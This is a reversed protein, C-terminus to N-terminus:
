SSAENAEAEGETEETADVDPFQEALLKNLESGRARTSIVNGDRGVLIMTPIGTIGYYATAPNKGGKDAEYKIYTGRDTMTYAGKETAVNITAIMGQGTQVYWPEDDRVEKGSEKWLYIEKKNTGSNDGRSVFVAQEAKIIGILILGLTALVLIAGGTCLAIFVAGKIM